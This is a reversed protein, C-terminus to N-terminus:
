HQRGFSSIPVLCFFFVSKFHVASSIYCGFYLLDPFVQREDSDLCYVLIHLTPSIVCSVFSCVQQINTYFNFSVRYFDRESTGAPNLLTTSGIKMEFCAM